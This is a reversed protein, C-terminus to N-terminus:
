ALVPIQTKRCDGPALTVFRLCWEQANEAVLIVLSCPMSLAM